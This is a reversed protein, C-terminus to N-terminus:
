VHIDVIYGFGLAPVIRELGRLTREATIAAYKLPARSRLIMETAFFRYPLITWDAFGARMCLTNLTKFTFVHLHDPHQVERRLVGLLCNSLSCGNPTSLILSTGPYHRKIASLFALPCPLHEIFEGAVIVEPSFGGTAAPTPDSADARIIRANNATRLGDGPLSESLDIGLVESAVAAIRGHLWHATDRKVLATEDLCGLDLVRRGRCREAIYALRDVPAPIPLREFHTYRLTNSDM